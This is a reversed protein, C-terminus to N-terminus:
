SREGYMNKHSHTSIECFATGPLRLMILPRTPIFYPIHPRGDHHRQQMQIGWTGMCAVVSPSSPCRSHYCCKKDSDLCHKPDWNLCDNIGEFSRMYSARVLSWTGKGGYRGGPVRYAFMDVGWGPGLQCVMHDKASSSGTHARVFKARTASHMLNAFAERWNRQSM